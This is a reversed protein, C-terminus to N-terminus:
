SVFFTSYPVRTDGSVVENRHGLFGISVVAANAAHAGMGPAVSKIPRYKILDFLTVRGTAHGCALTSNDHSM